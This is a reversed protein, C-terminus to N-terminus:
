EATSYDKMEAALRRRADFLRRKLTGVKTGTEASMERLSKGDLYFAALAHRDLERLGRVCTRIKEHRESELAAEDPTRATSPREALGNPELARVTRRRQTRNIALRITISRLWGGFAEDSRLQDIKTMATMFVDQSLDRADEANRVCRLALGFVQADFHDYLREFASRDGM